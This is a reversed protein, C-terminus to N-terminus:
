GRREGLRREAPPCRRGSGGTSSVRPRDRWGNGELVPENWPSPGADPEKGAAAPPLEAATSGGSTPPVPPAFESMKGALVGDAAGNDTARKSMTVATKVPVYPSCVHCSDKGFSRDDSAQGHSDSRNGQRTRNSGTKRIQFRPIEIPQAQDRKAERTRPRIRAGLPPSPM